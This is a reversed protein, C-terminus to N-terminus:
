QQNTSNNNSDNERTENKFYFSMECDINCYINNKLLKTYFINNGCNLCNYKILKLKNPKKPKEEWHSFTKSYELIRKNEKLKNLNTESKSKKIRNNFFFYNPNFPGFM